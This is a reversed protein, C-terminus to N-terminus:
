SGAAAFLDLQKVDRGFVVIRTPHSLKYDISEAPLDYDDRRGRYGKRYTKVRAEFKVREGERLAALEWAKCMTFWVHDAVIKGATDKVDVFLLTVIPPGKYASKSGFRKFTATFEGRRGDRRGLEERM